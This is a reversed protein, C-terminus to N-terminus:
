TRAEQHRFHGHAPMQMALKIFTPSMMESPPTRTVRGPGGLNSNPVYCSQRQVPVAVRRAYEASIRLM